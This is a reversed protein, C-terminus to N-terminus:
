SFFFFLFFLFHYAQIINKDQVLLVIIERLSKLYFILNFVDRINIFINNEHTKNKDDKKTTLSSASSFM